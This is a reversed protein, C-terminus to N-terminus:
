SVAKMTAGSEFFSIGGLMKIRKKSSTWPLASLEEQTPKDNQDDQKRDKHKITKEAFM